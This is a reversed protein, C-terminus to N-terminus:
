TYRPQRPTTANRQIEVNSNLKAGEVDEDDDVLIGAEAVLAVDVECGGDNGESLATCTCM